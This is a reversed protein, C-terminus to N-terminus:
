HPSSINKDHQVLDAQTPLLLQSTHLGHMVWAFDYWLKIFKDTRTENAMQQNQIEETTERRIKCLISPFPFHDLIVVKQNAGIYESM